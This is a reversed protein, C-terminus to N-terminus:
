KEKRRDKFIYNSRKKGRKNEIGSCHVNELNNGLKNGKLTTAGKKREEEKKRQRRIM